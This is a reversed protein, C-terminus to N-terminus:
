FRRVGKLNNLYLGDSLCSIKVGEKFNSAHIFQEDGLYIGCHWKSPSSESFFYLIDGIMMKKFEVKKLFKFQKICTRPVDSQYISKFYKQVFASCDIGKETTGGFKYPKGIWHTVFDGFNDFKKSQSETKTHFFLCIFFLIKRM